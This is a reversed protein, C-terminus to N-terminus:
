VNTGEHKRGMALVKGDQMRIFAFLPGGIVQWIGISMKGAIPATPSPKRVM